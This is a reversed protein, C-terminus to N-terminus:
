FRTKKFDIKHGQLMIIDLLGKEESYYFNEVFGVLYFYASVNGQAAAMQWYTTAWEINGELYLIVGLDLQAEAHGGKAAMQYYLKAKEINGERELL